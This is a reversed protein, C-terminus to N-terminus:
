LSAGKIIEVLYWELKVTDVASGSNFNARFKLAVGTSVDETVNVVHSRRLVSNGGSMLTGRISQSNLSGIFVSCNM